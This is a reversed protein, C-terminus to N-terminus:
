DYPFIHKPESQYESLRCIKDDEDFDIVSVGDFGSVTGDYDCRFFWQVVVTRGQEVMRHIDWQLVTGKQNWDAFWKLIQCLGHYQPGYCETYVADESFTHAVTQIDKQLWAEFYACVIEQKTM